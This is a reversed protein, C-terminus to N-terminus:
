EVPGPFRDAFLIALGLIVTLAIPGSPPEAVESFIVRMEFCHDGFVGQAGISWVDTVDHGSVAVEDEADFFIIVFVEKGTHVVPVEEHVDQFVPLFAPLLGLM